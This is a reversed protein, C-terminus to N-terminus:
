HDKPESELIIKFGAVQLFVSHQAMLLSPANTYIIATIICWM